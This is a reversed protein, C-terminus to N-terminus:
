VLSARKKQRAIKIYHGRVRSAGGDSDKDFDSVYKAVYAYARSWSDGSEKRSRVANYIEESLEQREEAKTLIISKRLEAEIDPMLARVIWAPIRKQRSLAVIASFAALRASKPDSEAVSQWYALSENDSRKPM